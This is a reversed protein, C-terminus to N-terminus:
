PKSMNRIAKKMKRRKKRGRNVTDFTHETGLPFSTPIKKNFPTIINILAIKTRRQICVRDARATSSHAPSYFRGTTGILPSITKDTGNSLYALKKSKM